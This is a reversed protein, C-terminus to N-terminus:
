GRCIGAYSGTRHVCQAPSVTGGRQTSMWASVMFSPRDPSAGATSKSAGGSGWMSMRKMLSRKPKRPAATLSPESLPAATAENSVRAFSNHDVSARGAAHADSGQLHYSCSPFVHQPLSKTCTSISLLSRTYPPSAPQNTATQKDTLLERIAHPAHRLTIDAEGRGSTHVMMATCGQQVQQIASSAGSAPSMASTALGATVSGVGNMDVTGGSHLGAEQLVTAKRSGLASTASNQKYPPLKITSRSARCHQEDELFGGVDLDEGPIGYELADAAAAPAGDPSIGSTLACAASRSAVSRAANMCTSGFGRNDATPAAPLLMASGIASGRSSSPGVSGGEVKILSAHSADVSSTLAVGSPSSTNDGESGDSNLLWDNVEQPLPFLLQLCRSRKKKKKHTFPSVGLPHTM